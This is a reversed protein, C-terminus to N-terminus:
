LPKGRLDTVNYTADRYSIPCVHVAHNYEHQEERLLIMCMCLVHVCVSGILPHCIINDLVPQCPWAHM